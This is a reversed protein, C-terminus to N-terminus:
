CYLQERGHEVQHFLQNTSSRGNIAALPSEESDRKLAPADRQQRLLAAIQTMTLATLRTAFIAWYTGSPRAQACQPTLAPNLFSFFAEKRRLGDRLM